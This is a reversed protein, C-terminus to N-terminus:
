RSFWFRSWLGVWIIAKKDPHQAVHRDLCNETINLKGGSFWRTQPTEKWDYDLVKEYPAKWDFTQAIESWFSEPDKVARQHAALFEEKTKLKFSELAM